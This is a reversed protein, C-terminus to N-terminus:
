TSSSEFHLWGKRSVKKGNYRVLPKENPALRSVSGIVAVGLRSLKRRHRRDFTCVLEFEEGGFLALDSASKGYRKAFDELGPTSPIRELGIKVRSSEALHYLSIALGDSSDICSSLLNACKLGLGLRARPSLVSNIAKKSFSSD